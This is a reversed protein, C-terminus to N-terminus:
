HRTVTPTARSVVRGAGVDEGRWSVLFEVGPTLERVASLGDGLEVELRLPRDAPLPEGMLPCWCLWSSPRGAPRLQLDVRPHGPRDVEKDFIVEIVILPLAGYEAM